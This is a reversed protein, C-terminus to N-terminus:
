DSVPVGISYEELRWVGGGQRMVKGQGSRDVVGAFTEQALLSGSRGDRAKRQFMILKDPEAVVAAVKGDMWIAGTRMDIEVPGVHVVVENHILSHGLSPNVEKVCDVLNLPCTDAEYEHGNNLNKISWWGM